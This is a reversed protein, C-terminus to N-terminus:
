YMKRKKSYQNAAHDFRKSRAYCEISRHGERGCKYCVYVESSAYCDKAWHGQRGCRLCRDLEGLVERRKDNLDQERLDINCYSGGRVNQWGYKDMYEKTIKDEDSAAVGNYVHMVSLPRHLATWESGYGSFHEYIRSETDTTKGVYYKGHQLKLVYVNTPM